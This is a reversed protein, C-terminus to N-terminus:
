CPDIIPDTISTLQTAHIRDVKGFKTSHIRHVVSFYHLHKIQPLFLTILTEWEKYESKSNNITSHM